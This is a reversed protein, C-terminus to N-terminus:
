APCSRPPASASGGPRAPSPDGAPGAVMFHRQGWDETKLDFVVQVGQGELAQFADDASDVEFSFVLGSGSFGSQLVSPQSPHNEVLFGIQAGSEHVLHVYWEADFVPQFQFLSVFFNRCDEIRDTVVVPFFAKPHIM